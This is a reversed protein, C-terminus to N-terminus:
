SHASECLETLVGFTGKPHVFAIKCDHAGVRPKEDIMKVANQQFHSIAEQINQVDYAIHHVGEGKKEMFKAIPSDEHTPELLEIHVEGAEFLAVKVKQEPVEEIGLFNLKMIDRYFHIQEDLKKVAIGIHAIKHIM